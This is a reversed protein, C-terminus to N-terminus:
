ASRANAGGPYRITGQLHPLGLRCAEETSLQRGARQSRRRILRNLRLWVHHEVKAFHRSANGTRFYATWGLLVPRLDAIVERLDRGSHHRPDTMTRVRERIRAMSKPSPWRYLYCRTGDRRSRAKKHTCGLFVFTEGKRSPNVVRTKEPHLRLKLGKLIM